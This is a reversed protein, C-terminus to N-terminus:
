YTTRVGGEAAGERGAEGARVFSRRRRHRQTHSPGVPPLRGAARGAGWACCVGQLCAAPPKTASAPPHRDLAGSRFDFGLCACAYLSAARLLKPEGGGRGM